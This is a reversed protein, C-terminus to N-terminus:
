ISIEKGSYDKVAKDFTQPPFLTMGEISISKVYFRKGTDKVTTEKEEQIVIEPKEQPANIEKENQRRFAEAQSTLERKTEESIDNEVALANATGALLMILLIWRFSWGIIMFRLIAYFIDFKDM